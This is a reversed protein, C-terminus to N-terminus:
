HNEYNIIGNNNKVFIGNNNNISVSHADSPIHTIFESDKRSDIYAAYAAIVASMGVAMKGIFILLPFKDRLKQEKGSM